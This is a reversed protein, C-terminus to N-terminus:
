CSIKGSAKWLSINSLQLTNKFEFSVEFDTRNQSFINLYEPDLFHNQSLLALIKRAQDIPLKDLFQNVSNLLPLHNAIAILCLEVLSEKLNM